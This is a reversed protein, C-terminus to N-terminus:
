AQEAHPRKKQTPHLHQWCLAVFLLVFNEIDQLCGTFCSTATVKALSVPRGKMVAYLDKVDGSPMKHFCSTAAATALSVPSGKTVAGLLNSARAAWSAMTSALPASFVTATERIFAREVTSFGMVFPIEHRKNLTPISAQDHRQKCAAGLARTQDELAHETVSHRHHVAIHM